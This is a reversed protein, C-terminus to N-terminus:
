FYFNEVYESDVNTRYHKVLGFIRTSQQNDNVITSWISSLNNGYDPTM